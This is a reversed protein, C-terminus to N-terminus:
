DDVREVGRMLPARGDIGVEKLRRITRARNAPQQEARAPREPLGILSLISHVQDSIIRRSQYATISAPSRSVHQPRHGKASSDADIKLRPGRRFTLTETNM